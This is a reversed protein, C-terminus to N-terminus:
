RDHNSFIVNKKKLDKNIKTSNIAFIDNLNKQFEIKKKAIDSQNIFNLNFTLKMVYHKLNQRDHIIKKMIVNTARLSYIFIRQKQIIKNIRKRTQIKKWIMWKSKMQILRRTQILTFEIEIFKIILVIYQFIDNSWIIYKTKQQFLWVIQQINLKNLNFYILTVKIERILRLYQNWDIQKKWLIMLHNKSCWENM